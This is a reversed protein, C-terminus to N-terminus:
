GCLHDFGAGLSRYRTGSKLQAGRGARVGGIAVAGDPRRSARGTALLAYDEGGFLALRLPALGLLRSARRLAPSLNHRLKGEDLVLRVGSADALQRADEALGDSVDLASSACRALRQGDAIRAQPRRWAQVCEAVGWQSLRAPEDVAWCRLARWGAAACGVEGLLWIEDGPRAGVRLLPALRTEGLVTTTLSLEKGRSVNGGAVPCQFEETALRQGEILAESQARDWKPPVIWASLVATPLAGMAAVDSLAAQVSRYGVDQLSLWSRDFHVGEVNVDVSCVTEGEARRLVAADDGIGIRVASHDTHVHRQLLSVLQREGFARSRSSM